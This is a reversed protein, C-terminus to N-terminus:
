GEMGLLEQASYQILFRAHTRAGAALALISLIARVVDPDKVRLIDHAGREALFRIAGFYDDRLWSPIEPNNQNDRALDITAVIAYTNWDPTRHECCTRVVHPVAAYSADGVDGQHHLEEWLEHWTSPPDTNAELKRLLPRADFRMRYGGVFEEWRKDDLSLM